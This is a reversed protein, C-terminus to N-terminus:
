INGDIFSKLESAPKYGVSKGKVKGGQYLVLTPIGMIGLKGPTQPNEDVNLKVIKVKEAYEGALDELVPALMKCPGCWSAWFDVLVPKTSNVVESDFNADTVHSIAESM